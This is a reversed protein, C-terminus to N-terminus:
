TVTLKPQRWAKLQEAEEMLNHVGAKEKDLAWSKMDLDLAGEDSEAKGKGFNKINWKEVGETGQLEKSFTRFVDANIQEYEGYGRPFDGFRELALKLLALHQRAYTGQSANKSVIGSLDFPEPDSSLVSVDDDEKLGVSNVTLSRLVAEHVGAARKYYRRALEEAGKTSQLALGTSIYVQSLLINMELTALHTSGYVRRLNYTMDAALHLALDHKNLLFRAIVLRRGLALVQSPRWVQHTERADWLSTLVTELTAFDKHEGLITIISNIQTWPISAVNLNLQNAAELLPKVISSAIAIQSKRTSSHHDVDAVTIALILGHRIAVPTNYWGHAYSYRFATQALDSAQRQQGTALLYKVREISAFNVSDLFNYIQRSGLYELLTVVLSKVQAADGVKGKGGSARLFFGVLEDEVHVMMASRKQLKVFSHLRAADTFVEKVSANSRIARQLNEYYVIETLISLYIESFTKSVNQQLSRELEALYIAASRDTTSLNVNYKKGKTTDKTVLQWRLAEALELGRRSEDVAIYSAAIASASKILVTSNRESSIIQTTAESLEKVAEEKKSSKAYLYSVEKLQKLSEEHTWGFQKRNETLRKRVITVGREIQESSATVTTSRAAELAKEEYIADLTARSESHYASAKSDSILQEYLATAEAEHRKSTKCLRALSLTAEYTVNTQAGFVALCTQRHLKTIEYIVEVGSSLAKLSDVYQKYVTEVFATDHFQKLEKGKHVFTNFLLSYAWTADRCRRENWYRIAIISLADIADPHCINTDKTLIEVIQRYYDISIPDPATLQALQRLTEVTAQHAPGYSKRYDELLEQHLYIIKDAARNQEYIKMLQSLNEKVLADDIKRVSKLIRYLRERIEQAKIARHRSEYCNILRDALEFAFEQNGEPQNVDEISAAFLSPWVVRLVEKITMAAEKWKKQAICTSVAQKVASTSTIDLQKAKSSEISSIIETVVSRSVHTAFASSSSVQELLERQTANVYESVETYSSSEAKSQRSVVSAQHKFIELAIVASGMIKLVQGAEFLSLSVEETQSISSSEYEQWIATLLATAETERKRSKLFKAYTIALKIRKVDLSVCRATQSQQSTGYWAEIYCQEAKDTLNKSEYSQALVLLEDIDKSREAQLDGIKQFTLALTITSQLITPHTSNFALLHLELSTTHLSVQRSYPQWIWASKELLGVLPSTPVIQSLETKLEPSIDKLVLPSELYHSAWYRIAYETLAHQSFIQDAQAPNLTSLSPDRQDKVATRLYALLRRALDFSLERASLSQKHQEFYSILVQRIAAHRLYFLGDQLFILSSVPALLHLPDIKSGSMTGTRPDVAYILALEEASLPRQAITLWLLLQKGKESLDAAIIHDRIVDQLSKPNKKIAAAAKRFKDVSGQPILVKTVLKAWLFNSQSSEVIQDVIIDREIQPLQELFKVGRLLNSVVAFVDDYILDSTIQVNITSKSLIAAPQSLTVLKFKEHKSAADTLHKHLKQAEKQDGSVEDIGDVIIITDKAEKPTTAVANELATWLLSEYAGIDTARASAEYAESLVKYLQVDGVRSELLQSLLSRVVQLSTSQVKVRDNVPVFLVAYSKRASQRQVTDVITGALVSKGSGPPGTIALTGERSNLFKTLYPQAWLCTLQQRDNVLSTHDGLKYKLVSDEAALWSRLTKIAPHHETDMNEQSLQYKWMSEVIKDRRSQFSEITGAFATYIEISVVPDRSNLIAQYFRLAVDSVLTVLDSYALVLQENIEFSVNFLEVRDLLAILDLSCKFFFGFSTQLAAANDDGLDLLLACYGFAIEAGDYNGGTFEEIALDFENFKEAFSQAWALVKDWASGETPLTQLREQSIKEILRTYSSVINNSIVAGLEDACRRKLLDVTEAM